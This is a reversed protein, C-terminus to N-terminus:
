VFTVFAIVTFTSIDDWWWSFGLSGLLFSKAFGYKDVKSNSYIVITDISKLHERSDISCREKFNLEVATSDIILTQTGM